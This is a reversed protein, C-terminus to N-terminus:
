AIYYHTRNVALVVPPVNLKSAIGQEAKGGGLSEFAGDLVFFLQARAHSGPFQHLRLLQAHLQAPTNLPLPCERQVLSTSNSTRIM